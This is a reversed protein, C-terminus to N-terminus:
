QFDRRSKYQIFMYELTLGYKVYKDRKPEASKQETKAGFVSNQGDYQWIEVSRSLIKCM